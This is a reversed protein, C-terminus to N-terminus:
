KMEQAIEQLGTDNTADFLAEPNKKMANLYEGM